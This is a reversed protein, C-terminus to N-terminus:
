EARPEPAPAAPAAKAAAGPRAQATGAGAALRQAGVASLVAEIRLLYSDRRPDEPGLYSRVASRLGPLRAALSADSQILILDESARYLHSLALQYTGSASVLQRPWVKRFHEALVAEAQDLNDEIGAVRSRVDLREGVPPDPPRRPQAAGPAVAEPDALEPLDARIRAAENRVRAAWNSRGRKGGWGAM